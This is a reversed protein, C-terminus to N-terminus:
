KHRTTPEEPHTRRIRELAERALNRIDADEHGVAVFELYSIAEPGGLTGVADIVKALRATDRAKALRTLPKVARRDGIEVLAGIARDSIETRKDELLALLPPVAERIRRMAAIEVAAALRRPDREARLTQAVQPPPAVAVRAQFAIEAIARELATLLRARRRQRTTDESGLREVVTASLRVVGLKPRGEASVLVAGGGEGRRLGLEVRLDYAEQHKGKTESFQGTKKLYKRVQSALEARTAVRESADTADRVALEAIAVASEIDAGRKRPCALTLSALTTVAILRAATTPQLM